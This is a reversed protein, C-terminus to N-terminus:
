SDRPVTVGEVDYTCDTIGESWGNGNIDCWYRSKLDDDACDILWHLMIEDGCTVCKRGAFRERGEPNYEDLRIIGNEALEHVPCGDERAKTPTKMCWKCRMLMITEHPNDGLEMSRGPMDAFDHGLMSSASRGSGHVM